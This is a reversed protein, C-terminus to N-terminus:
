GAFAAGVWAVVAILATAAQLPIARRMEKEVGSPSTYPTSGTFNMALYSSIAMTFFILGTAEVWSLSNRFTLAVALGAAIGTLTGKLAFARGPIWPLLIPAAVAGSLIGAVYATLAILGRSWAANFSFFGTGIGSLLFVALLVWTTPKPLHALEVPVLVAREPLTFTVRRMSQGAKCGDAVFQQIDRAQIPGWLVEFGSEKKVAVASVGTAALQPLIIKKHRVVTNLRSQTVRHVVERTSFLAKGAACWVNIGRTDIVLIWGNFSTLERRLTDFTLKYNATVLVPSDAGPEGVGYLGPAIKYQDGKIGLRASLTGRVDSRELCTKVRPVPGIPTDFFSDVFSQLEYGAKEYPSSQPGPPSGCCVGDSAPAMVFPQLGNQKETPCCTSGSSCCENQPQDLDVM